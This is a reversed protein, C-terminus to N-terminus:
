GAPAVGVLRKLMLWRSPGGAEYLTPELNEAEDDHVGVVLQTGESSWALATPGRPCSMMALIM